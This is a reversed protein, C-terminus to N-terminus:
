NNCQVHRSQVVFCWLIIVIGGWILGMKIDQDAISSFLNPMIYCMALGALVGLVRLIFGVLCIDKYMRLTMWM